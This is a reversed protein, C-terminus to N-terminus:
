LKNDNVNEFPTPVPGQAQGNGSLKNEGIVNKLIIVPNEFQKKGM